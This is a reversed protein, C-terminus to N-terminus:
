GAHETMRNATIVKEALARNLLHSFLLALAPNELALQHATVRSMSLTVTDIEAIVDATRKGGISFAIDGVIAGPLMTRLRKAIGDSVKRQVVARGSEIFYVDDAMTGSHIITEGSAFHIRQMSAFLQELELLDV